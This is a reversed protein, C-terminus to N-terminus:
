NIEDSSVSEDDRVQLSSENVNKDYIIKQDMNM